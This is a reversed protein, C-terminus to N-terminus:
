IFPTLSNNNHISDHEEHFVKVYKMQKPPLPLLNGFFDGYFFPLGSKSIGHYQTFGLKEYFGIAPKNVFMRFRMDPFQELTMERMFNFLDRGIGKDRHEEITFLHFLTTHLPQRITREFFIFGKYDKTFVYARDKNEWRKGLNWEYMATNLHSLSRSTAKPHLTDIQNSLNKKVEELPEISTIQEFM